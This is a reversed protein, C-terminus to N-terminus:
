RAAVHGGPLFQRICGEVASGPESEVTVDHGRSTVRLGGQDTMACMVAASGAQWAAQGSYTWVTLPNAPDLSARALSCTSHSACIALDSYMSATVIQHAGENRLALVDRPHDVLCQDFDRPSQSNTAFSSMGNECRGLEFVPDSVARTPPPPTRRADDKGVLM